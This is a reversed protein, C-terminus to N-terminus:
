RSKTLDFALLPLQRGAIIPSDVDGMRACGQRLYFGEAQPDSEILLTKARLKIAKSTAYDFLARGVGLGMNDPDVFLKDLYWNTDERLIQGVGVLRNDRTAVFVLAM